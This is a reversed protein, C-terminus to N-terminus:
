VNKRRSRNIDYNEIEYEFWEEQPLATVNWGHLRLMFMLYRENGEKCTEDKCVFAINGETGPPLTNFTYCTEKNNSCISEKGGFSQCCYDTCQETYMLEGHSCYYERKMGLYCGDLDHSECTSTPPPEIKQGIIYTKIFQFPINYIGDDCTYYVQIVGIYSQGGVWVSLDLSSTEGANLHIAADDIYDRLDEYPRLIIDIGQDNKNKIDISFNIQMEEYATGNIILWPEGSLPMIPAGNQNYITPNLCLASALSNSLFLTMSFGFLFLLKQLNSKM